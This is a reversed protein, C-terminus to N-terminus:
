VDRWDWVLLPPPPDSMGFGQINFNFYELAEEYDMETERMLVDIIKQSSYCVRPPSSWGPSTSTLGLIAEDFYGPEYFIVVDDEDLLDIIDERTM